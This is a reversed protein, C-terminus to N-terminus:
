KIKKTMRLINKDGKREYEVFDMLQRMLFIGLGGIERESAPSTVDAEPAELPNFAIGKDRLTFSLSNENTKKVELEITGESGPYAYLIINTLAEELALNMNFVVDQPLELEKHLEETLAFLKKLENLQNNLIITKGQFMNKVM